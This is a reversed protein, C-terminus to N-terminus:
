DKQFRTTYIKDPTSLQVLYQGSPWRQITVGSQDYDEASFVMKGMLNFISLQAGRQIEQDIVFQIDDSAPNPIAQLTSEDVTIDDTSSTMITVDYGAINSLCPNHVQEIQWNYFFFYISPFSSSTFTIWSDFVMPYEPNFHYGFQPHETGFEAMNTETDTSIRYNEDKVLNFNLEITQVGLETLNVEQSGVLDGASSLLTIIRRGPMDVQVDVSKVVLDRKPNIYLLGNSGFTNPQVASAAIDAGVELSPAMIEPAAQYYYTVDEEANVELTQGTGLVQTGAADGYWTTEQIGSDLIIPGQQEEVSIDSVVLPDVIEVNFQQSTITECVSEITAQIVTSEDIIQAQTNVGDLWEAEDYNTVQVTFFDGSCLTVDNNINLMPEALVPSGHISLINSPVACDGETSVQYLGIESITVQAGTEGTNWTVTSLDSTIEITQTPDIECLTPEAVTSIEPLRDICSGEIALYHTDANVDTYTETMGSPWTIVISDIETSQNLGFHQNATNQISYSTGAKHQRCQVGDSNYLKVLTGIAQRNSVTGQLSLTFYHNTNGQNTFIRDVQPSTGALGNAGAYFDIFGDENIDGYAASQMQTLESAVGIVATFTGGDNYYIIPTSGAVILDEWGNNDLDAVMAQYGDGNNPVLDRFAVDETFFGNGDNIFVQNGDDHNVLFLDMAGDRNFDGFDAAWSQAGVAINREAAAETFTGDGNNVFLANVRRMDSADLVGLRCKAIYLDLDNDGDIDSWVSGYNGSNDSIPDTSMDIINSRDVLVGNGDNLYISSLGDDNCLFLDINGDNDIDALSYAQAFIESNLQQSLNYTNANEKYIYVGDYFGSTFMEAIGDNDLDLAGQAWPQNSGQTFEGDLYLSDSQQSYTYKYVNRDNVMMVDDRFDGNLDTFVKPIFTSKSQGNFHSDSSTFSVQATVSLACIIFLMICQSVLLSKRM